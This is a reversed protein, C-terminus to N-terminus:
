KELINESSIILINRNCCFSLSKLIYLFAKSKLFRMELLIWSIFSVPRFDTMKCRHPNTFAWADKEKWKILLSLINFSIRWVATSGWFREKSETHLLIPVRWSQITSHLLAAVGKGVKHNRVVLSLKWILYQMFKKKLPCWFQWFDFRFTCSFDQKILHIQFAM